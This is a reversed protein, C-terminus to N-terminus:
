YQAFSYIIFGNLISLLLRTLLEFLMAELGSILLTFDQGLMNRKIFM